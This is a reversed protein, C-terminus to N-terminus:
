QVILQDAYTHDEGKVQLQYIGKPVTFHLTQSTTGNIFPLAKTYVVQGLKNTLSVQYVGQMGNHLSITIANNKTPNPYVTIGKPNSKLTVKSIGTFKVEGTKDVSRIRYYNTAQVPNADFWDYAAIGTSGNSFVTAVKSFTRGDTAREVEYHKIGAQSAVNWEVQVGENKAYAKISTFQVPLAFPATFILQFRNYFTASDGTFTFPVMTSGTTSLQHLQNYYKDHLFASVGADFNSGDLQLSYTNNTYLQSLRLPITDNAFAPKRGELGLLKGNRVISINEDPNIFKEADEKGIAASFNEKFAITAADAIQMNNNGPANSMLKVVMRSPMLSDQRFTNTFTNTKDAEEFTLTPNLTGGTNLFLGQIPLSDASYGAYPLQYMDELTRLVNYHSIPQNSTIGNVNMGTFTTLIHNNNLGNNSDEDFTLIFLSNHTLCWNIYPGLHDRVWDDGQRISGDHMDNNQNPIVMSFTPLQNYDTPFDSFPRNVAQPLGNVPADQWNVWPNHKRAYSNNSAYEGTYGVSPLTEAYGVFTKGSAILSAGINPTTFPVNAPVNNHNVGQDSGSFLQLYNPQSPRTLAYSNTLTKTHSNAILSNIFPADANGVIHEYARNELVVMVTHEPAATSASASQVFISQGPQIDKTIAGGGSSGVGTTYSTYAGRHGISPDWIWYTPNLDTSSLANFNVPSWYPNAIFSYDGENAGLTVSADTAGNATTGTKTYTVPGTILTGTAKLTTVNNLSINDTGTGTNNAITLDANRDGMIFTRYGKLANLTNVNTNGIGTFNAAGPTYTFMSVAGTQTADFGNSGTTSGTIHIGAGPSYVGANQWNDRITSTTNVGSALHRYARKGMPIFREVTVNGTISGKVEPVIATNAISTSQLTLYGGTNFSGSTSVLTDTLTLPGSLTVGAANKINIAKIANGAFANAPIIQPTTGNLVISGTTATITGSNLISGAISVTANDIIVSAGSEVVLNKMSTATNMVPMPSSYSPVLVNTSSSPLKGEEWNNCDLADTNGKNGTWTAARTEPKNAAARTDVVAPATYAVNVWAKQGAQTNNTNRVKVIIWGTTTPTYTGTLPAAGTSVGQIESLKNGDLDWLSLTLDRGDAAPFVKYNILKNADSFIKGAVRQNSSNTPLAGGQGLSKCHSDGLDDAMEWEQTTVPSLPQAYTGLYNYLDQVSTITVGAPAPAWISYGHGFAGAIMHGVPATRILVRHNNFDGFNDTVTVTSTGHAGSYDYLVTGIPFSCSIYVEQDNNNDAGSNYYDSVGLIAKGVREFVVHDGSSGKQYYPTYGNTTNATPVGYDGDKFSLKQHAQIINQLDGRIPLDTTSTPLHSWRKGTTGIDFLDELFVIPNGDVAFAAAYAAALRPERSDIHRGNGGVENGEDWGSADGLPKLFNGNADVKPRYSDHSNVYPVTRHVINGNPYTMVREDQQEGPLNQMNYGGSSMVMSYLGGNPGYARLSFDFTGTHKEDTVGGPANGTKVSNVYADLESKNGIWEGVCFMNQGGAAWTPLSYKTNYIYDEQVATEFHKVADWRWGDSGTQKKFWQIWDRGSNRMYSTSQAPNYYPRTVGNITVTGTTPINSSQGFAGDLYCIDPGFLANCIDNGSLCDHTLTPHFNPYNKSWRGSRTWYDNQSDDLLPTAYSTFRFNKYGSNSRTSFSPEPDLGGEGANGGAGDNHNLVIDQIVEIGNAHMVAIMRLLEDKSGIRSRVNLSDGGGKQYKDGLDYMDFPGYGVYGTSANKYVPPIWIADFGAARLRPALETLYNAWGNPFNSNWYDWWFGQFVTKKVRTQADVHFSFILVLVAICALRLLTFTRTM